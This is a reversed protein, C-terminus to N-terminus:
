FWAATERFPPRRIAEPIPGTTGTDEKALWLSRQSPKQGVFARGAEWPKPQGWPTQKQRPTGQFLGQAPGRQAVGTWAPGSPPSIPPPSRVLLMSDDESEAAGRADQLGVVVVVFLERRVRASTL